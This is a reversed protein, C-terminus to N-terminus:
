VEDSSLIKIFENSDCIYPRFKGNPLGSLIKRKPILANLEKSIEDLSFAITAGTDGGIEDHILKDYKIDDASGIFIDNGKTFVVGGVDNWMLIGNSRMYEALASDENFFDCLENPDCIVASNKKITLFESAEEFDDGHYNLSWEMGHKKM